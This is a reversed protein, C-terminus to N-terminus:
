VLLGYFVVSSLFVKTNECFSFAQISFDWIWFDWDFNQFCTWLCSQKNGFWFSYILFRLEVYFVGLCVKTSRFFKEEFPLSFFCLYFSRVFGCCNWIDEDNRAPWCPDTFLYCIFKFVWSLAPVDPFKKKCSLFCSVKKKWCLLEEWSRRLIRTDRM